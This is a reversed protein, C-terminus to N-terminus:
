RDCEGLVIDISGINTIVDAVLRGECLTPLAAVHVYSPSRLRFRYPKGSGDSVIYFGLEGKPAEIASYIEADVPTYPGKTSLMFHQIMAEM